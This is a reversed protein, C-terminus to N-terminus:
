LKYAELNLFIHPPHQALYTSSPPLRNINKYGVRTLSERLTYETYLMKHVHGPTWAESFFHGYLKWRGNEDAKIFEKCSELFDPTELHLRCGPKLVRLWEFLIDHAELYDFHEIVHFARIEDISDNAYPLKRIDYRQDAKQAYLDVNVYGDIYDGGSGLNLKTAM